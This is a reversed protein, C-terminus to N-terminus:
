FPLEDDDEVTTDTAGVAETITPKAPAEVRPEGNSTGAPEWDFFAYNTYKINKAKDYKTSVEFDKVQIRDGEELCHSKAKEHAKGVFNVYASFDTDYEAPDTGKIKKSSSLNVKTYKDHPEVSWVKMYSDIRLAM